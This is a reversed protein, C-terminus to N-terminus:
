FGRLQIEDDEFLATLRGRREQMSRGFANMLEWVPARIVWSGGVVLAADEFDKVKYAFWVTRGMETLKVRVLERLGISLKM